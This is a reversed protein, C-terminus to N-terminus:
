IKLKLFLSFKGFNYQLINLSLNTRRADLVIKGKIGDYDIGSQVENLFAGPNFNNKALFKILMSTADFGYLANRDFLYGTLEYFEKNMRQYDPQTMDLFYDSDIYMSALFPAPESFVDSLLWDQNGYVNKTFALDRLKENLLAANKVDSVPFYIGDLKEDAKEIEEILSEFKTDKMNYVLSLTVKGGLREFEEKFSEALQNSYGEKLYVIGIKSLGHYNRAFSAMIKGRTTFTPNAQIVLNSLQPLADDTATPSIVPLGLDSFVSIVDRSDKSSTSGIVGSLTKDVSLERKMSAIVSSDSQTDRILLGVKTESNQNFLHVAYKIGELVQYSRRELYPKGKDTLPLLVAINFSQKGPQPDDQASAAVNAIFLIFLFKYIRSLSMIEEKM